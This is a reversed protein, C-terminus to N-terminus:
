IGYIVNISLIHRPFFSSSSKAANFLVGVFPGSFLFIWSSGYLRIDWLYRQCVIHTSSLFHFLVQCCQLSSWCISWLVLFSMVIWLTKYGMSLTSLSYTDLFSLPLPSPLMSSLMSAGICHSSSWMLFRPSSQNCGGSVICVVCLDVSCFYSRLLFSFFFLQISLILHWVLSIQSSFDQVHSLFPFMLLSILNRRIAACFLAM